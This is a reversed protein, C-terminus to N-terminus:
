AIKGLELKEGWLRLMEYKIAQNERTILQPDLGIVEEAVSRALELVDRYKIMDGYSIEQEGSQKTGLIEGPGRIKLDEEAIKFGDTTKELIKLRHIANRGAKEGVVLFCTAERQGRGVRGRLQHLQALGFREAHGIVMITANPVDVGVEIVTTSVLIQINGEKFERMIWEKEEASMRGHLLGVSYGRFVNRVNEFMEVASKLDMKESKEILPYVFYAQEGSEIARRVREYVYEMRSESVVLTKVRKRGPPMEDLISIDLDGYTTMALTRPIPTATMVLVDPNRGKSVLEKRQLVGFRHQEDIIVYGLRDFRVDSQFLAHTGVVISAGGSYVSMLVSERRKGTVSGTLLAVGIDLDRLYNKINIYHQEALIETPAMLAVQYGAEIVDLATILAVLTKGSGVDGQLLRNMPYHSSLDKEIEGIVRLQANTLKFPLRSVLKEKLKGEFDFRIGPERKNKERRYLLALQFPFFVSFKLRRHYDTEGNKLAEVDMQPSPFHLASVSERFSPLGIRSVIRSPLYDDSPLTELNKRVLQRILDQSLFREPPYGTMIGPSFRSEEIIEPHVMSKYGSYSDFSVKGAVVVDKGEPFLRSPFNRNYNFWLLKMVGSKDKILVQYIRKGGSTRIEGKGTVRGKVVVEENVRANFIKVLKRRDLYKVPLFLFLDRVFRINHKDLYKKLRKDDGACPEQFLFQVFQLNTKWNNRERKYDELSALAKKLIKKKVEQDAVDYKEFLSALHYVLM